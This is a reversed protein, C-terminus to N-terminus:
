KNTRDNKSERRKENEVLIKILEKHEKASLGKDELLFHMLPGFAGDFAQDLLTSLATRRAQRRSLLPKYYSTNGKKNESVAKKVVLRNLMTKITTYAWNIGTPLREAIDRAKAPHEQWLANMILWETETLKM